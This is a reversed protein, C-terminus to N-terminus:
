PQARKNAMADNWAEAAKEPSVYYLTSEECGPCIVYYAVSKGKHGPGIQMIQPTSGCKCESIEIM